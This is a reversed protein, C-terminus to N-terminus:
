SQPAAVFKSLSYQSIKTMASFAEASLSARYNIWGQKIKEAKDEFTDNETQSLLTENIVNIESLEHNYAEAEAPTLGAELALERDVSQLILSNASPADLIISGIGSTLSGLAALGSTTQALCSTGVCCTKQAEIDEGDCARKTFSITGCGCSTGVGVAMMIGAVWALYSLSGGTMYTDVIAHAKPTPSISNALLSASILLVALKKM